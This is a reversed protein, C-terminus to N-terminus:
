TRKPSEPLKWRKKIPADKKELDTAASFKTKALLSNDEANEAYRPGFLQELFGEISAELEQREYLSDSRSQQQNWLIDESDM